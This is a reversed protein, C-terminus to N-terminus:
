RDDGNRLTALPWAVHCSLTANRKHWAAFIAGFFREERILRKEKQGCGSADALSKRRTRVRASNMTCRLMFILAPRDDVHTM